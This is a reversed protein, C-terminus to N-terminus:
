LLNDLVEHLRNARLYVSIQPNHEHETDFDLKPYSIAFYRQLSAVSNRV